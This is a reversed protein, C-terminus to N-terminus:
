EVIITGQTTSPHLTSLYTYTGPETLTVRFTAGPRLTGSAFRGDPAPSEKKTKPDTHPSVSTVTQTTSSKQMWIITTGSRVTLRAPTVTQDQITVVQQTLPPYSPSPSPKAAAGPKAKPPGAELHAPILVAVVLLGLAGVLRLRANRVRRAGADPKM